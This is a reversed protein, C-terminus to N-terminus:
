HNPCVGIITKCPAGPEGVFDRCDRLATAEAQELTTEQGSFSGLGTFQASQAVALCQYGLTGYFYRCDSGCAREAAQAVQYFAHNRRLLIEDSSMQDDYQFAGQRAAWSVSCDYGNARQGNDPGNFHCAIAMVPQELTAAPASVAAIGL